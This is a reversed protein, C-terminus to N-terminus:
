VLEVQGLNDALYASEQWARRTIVRLLHKRYKVPDDIPIPVHIAINVVDWGKPDRTYVYDTTAHYRVEGRKAQAVAELAVRLPQPLNSHDFSGREREYEHFVSWEYGMYPKSFDALAYIGAESGTFRCSEDPLFVFHFTTWGEGTSPNERVDQRAKLQGGPFNSM